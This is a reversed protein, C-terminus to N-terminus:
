LIEDHRMCGTGCTAAMCWLTLFTVILKGYADTIDQLMNEPQM